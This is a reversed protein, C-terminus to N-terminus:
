DAAEEKELTNKFGYFIHVFRPSNAMSFHNDDTLIIHDKVKVKLTEMFQVLVKTVDIDNKSPLAVGHPHNHSIVVSAAKTELVISALKRFDVMSSNIDGESLLRYTILSNKSDFCLVYICEKHTKDVYLKKLFDVIQEPKEFVPKQKFLEESYFKYLPLIMKILCVANETMGKFSVLEKFDAEFVAPLSKYHDILMHAIENTNKYPVGFFLLMELVEHDSMGKFGNEYFQQKVRQRHGQHLNKSEKKGEAM